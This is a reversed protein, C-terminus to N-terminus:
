EGVQIVIAGVVLLWLGFWTPLSVSERFVFRGFLVGLSAFVAVYAGLLRAFDWRVTNVVLGYSALALAGTVILTVRQGRLGARILANGGVELVAAVLFVAWAAFNV